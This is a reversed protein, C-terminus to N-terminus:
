QAARELSSPSAAKEALQLGAPEIKALLAQREVLVEAFAARQEASIPPAGPPLKATRADLPQGNKRLEYHVHPGTALGTAGVYGIVEGQKVARGARMGSAFRSMHAYLTTYGGPHRLEVVNGYGGRRGVFSVTGDGAALIRTGTPAGFDTGLHGRYVGLVPHYRRWSFASTIRVYDVPYRRFATRLSGGTDDFYGSTKGDSFHLAPYVRGGNELEAILIKRRRATGDPRAEREYVLRYRDGPQIDRSFDLKFVYIEALESVMAIREALPLDLEEDELVAHYLTRGSGIVGRAYVTDIVTPTVIVDSTWGVEPEARLRVTSDANLRVEVQRPEGSSFWRRITVELGERLQRPSRYERLALLLGSLQGGSISARDLLHSLTEGRRLVHTEVREAPAAYVAALEPAEIPQDGPEFFSFAGWALVCVIILLVARHPSVM